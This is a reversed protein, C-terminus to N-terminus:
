KRQRGLTRSLMRSGGRRRGGHAEKVYGCHVDTVPLEVRGLHVRCDMQGARLGLDGVKVFGGQGNQFGVQLGRPGGQRGGKIRLQPRKRAGVMGVLGGLQLGVDMAQVAQMHM